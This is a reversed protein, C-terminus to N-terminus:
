DFRIKGTNWDEVVKFAAKEVDPIGGKKLRGMKQAMMTLFETTDKFDLPLVPHQLNINYMYYLNM